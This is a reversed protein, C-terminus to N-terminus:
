HSACFIKFLLGLFPCINSLVLKIRRLIEHARLLVREHVTYGVTGVKFSYVKDKSQLPYTDEAKGQPLLLISIM